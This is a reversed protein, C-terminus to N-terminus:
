SGALRAAPVELKGLDFPKDVDLTVKFRGKADWKVDPKDLALGNRARAHWVQFEIPEGAPLNTIEFSGDKSTQAFYNDGRFWMYAKMWPHINCAVEIVADSKAKVPFPISQSAPVIPNFGTGVINTNHGTTDSNKVQITQGVQAMLVPSLFM